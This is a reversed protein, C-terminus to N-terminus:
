SKSTILSGITWLCAPFLVNNHPHKTMFLPPLALSSCGSSHQPEADKPIEGNGMSDACCPQLSFEEWFSQPPGPPKWLLSNQPQKCLLPTCSSRPTQGPVGWDQCWPISLIQPLAAWPHRFTRELYFLDLNLLNCQFWPAPPHLQSILATLAWVASSQPTEARQVNIGINVCLCPVGPLSSYILCCQARSRTQFFSLWAQIFCFKRLKITQHLIEPDLIEHQFGEHNYYIM